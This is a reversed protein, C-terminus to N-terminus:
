RWTSRWRTWGTWAGARSTSASGGPPSGRRPPPRPSRRRCPTSTTRSSSASRSSGPPRWTSADGAGVRHQRGRRRLLHRHGRRDRVAEPQLRLRGGAARGRRRDREHGHRRGRAVPPAHLRRAGPLLRRGARLDRRPHPAAGRARRPDARAARRVEGPRRARLGEGPVPPAGPPLRQRLRRLAAAPDLRRRRGGSRHQLAGPRPRAGAGALELVYEEFSRIWQARSFLSMLLDPDATAWDDATAGLQVWPSAASLNEHSPM